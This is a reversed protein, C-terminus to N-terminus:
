QILQIEPMILADYNQEDIYKVIIISDGDVEVRYGIIQSHFGYSSDMGTIRILSSPALITGRIQSQAGGNLVVTKANRLPLFLLLGEFPGSNPASLQIDAGASMHVSGHEVYLVVNEGRLTTRGKIDVDGNICYIGSQLDTVGDPPFDEEWNGSSMSHGNESITAMRTGCGPKPLVFPPPYAVPAAGTSPIFPQGRDWGPRGRNAYAAFTLRKILDLKQISAGGVIDLPSKDMIVLSGSGQQFFACRSDRSNIFLGGGELRLTAQGHLWFSKKLNCDSTPALSIVSYGNMIEGIESPKARAVTEVTNTTQRINVVPAFFTKVHSAIVVQIYERNGRYPGSVPPNHLTVTNSDGDNNYGNEAASRLAASEANQGRIRARAAALAASDAANQAQRRDAYAMGGDVVLGTIAILGILAVVILVIAQGRESARYRINSTTEMM